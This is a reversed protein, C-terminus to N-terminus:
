KKPTISTSSHARKRSPGEENTIGEIAPQPIDLLSSISESDQITQLAKEDLYSSVRIRNAKVFRGIIFNHELNKQYFFM